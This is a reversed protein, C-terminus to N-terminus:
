STHLKRFADGHSPRFFQLTAPLKGLCLHSREPGDGQRDASCDSSFQADANASCLCRHSFGDDVPGSCRYHRSPDMALTASSFTPTGSCFALVGPRRSDVAASSGASSLTGSIAMWYLDGSLQPGVVFYAAGARHASGEQESFIQADRDSASYWFVM